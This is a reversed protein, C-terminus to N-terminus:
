RFSGASMSLIAAMLWCWMLLEGVEQLLHFGRGIAIAREKIVGHDNVAAADAIAVAVIVVIQRNQKGAAAASEFCPAVDFQGVANGTAFRYKLM